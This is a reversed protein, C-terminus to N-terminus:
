ESAPPIWGKSCFTSMDDIGTEPPPNSYIQWVREDDGCSIVCTGKLEGDGDIVDTEDKRDACSLPKFLGDRSDCKTEGKEVTLNTGRYEECYTQIASTGPITHPFICSGSPVADPNLCPIESGTSECTGPYDKLGRHLVWYLAAAPTILKCYHVGQLTLPSTDEPNFASQLSPSAIEYSTGDQSLEFDENLGVWQGGAGVVMDDLFTVPHGKDDYTAREESTLQDLAWQFAAENRSKCTGPASTPTIELISSIRDQNPMKCLVQESLDAPAPLEPECYPKIYVRIEVPPDGDKVVQSPRGVWDDMVPYVDNLIMSDPLTDEDFGTVVRLSELCWQQTLEKATTFRSSDSSDENESNCTLNSIVTAIVLPLIMRHRIM